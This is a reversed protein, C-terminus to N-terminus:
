TFQSLWVVILSILGNMYVRILDRMSGTLNKHNIPRLLSFFPKSFVKKWRMMSIAHADMGLPVKPNAKPVNILQSKAQVRSLVSAAIIGLAAKKTFNRRKM